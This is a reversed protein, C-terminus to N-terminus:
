YLSDDSSISGYYTCKQINSIHTEDVVLMELIQVIEHFSPRNNEDDDWCKVILEKIQIPVQKFQPLNMPPRLSGSVVGNVIQLIKMTNYPIERTFIEWLVIAFSYVDASTSYRERSLVEPACHTVSGCMTMTTDQQFLGSIGFDAIKVRWSQDVLLNASKLDRHIVQPRHSHLYLMGKATDFAMNIKTALSLDISPDSLIARLDGRPCLETVLYLYRPLEIHSGVFQVINPHRLQAMIAVEKKFEEVVKNINKNKVLSRKVAVDSGFLKGRYVEAFSGHGIPEGIKLENMDFYIKYQSADYRHDLLRMTNEEKYKRSRFREICIFFIFFIICLLIGGVAGVLPYIWFYSPCPDLINPEGHIQLNALFNRIRTVLIDPPNVLGIYGDAWNYSQYILHPVYISGNERYTCWYSYYCLPYAEPHSSNFLELESFKPISGDTPFTENRASRSHTVALELSRTTLKIPIGLHNKVLAVSFNQRMQWIADFSGIGISYPTQSVGLLVNPNGQYSKGTLNMKSFIKWGRFVDDQVREEWAKSITFWFKNMLYTEGSDDWRWAVFIKTDIPLRRLQPNDKILEPDTWTKIKGSYIGLLTELSFILRHEEKLQPINYAVGAATAGLPACFFNERISQDPYNPYETAIIATNERRMM